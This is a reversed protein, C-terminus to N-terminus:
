NRKSIMTEASLVGLAALSLFFIVDKTDIVGRSISEFHRTMSLDAFVEGLWGTM